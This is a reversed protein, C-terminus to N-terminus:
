GIAELAREREALAVALAAGLTAEIVVDPDLGAVDADTIRYADHRVKDLLPALEPPDDGRYAAEAVPSSLIAEVVVAWAADRETMKGRRPRDVVM